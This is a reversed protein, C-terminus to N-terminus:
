PRMGDIKLEWRRKNRQEEERRRTAEKPCPLLRGPTATNKHIPCKPSPKPPPECCGVKPSQGKRKYACCQVGPPCGQNTRPELWAKWKNLYFVVAQSLWNLQHDGNVSVHLETAYCPSIQCWDWHLGPVFNWYSVMGKIRGSPWSWRNGTKQVKIHSWRWAKM